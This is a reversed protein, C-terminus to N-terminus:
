SQTPGTQDENGETGGMGYDNQAANIDAMRRGIAASVRGLQSFPIHSCMELVARDFADRDSIMTRLREINDQHRLVYLAQAVEELTPIVPVAGDTPRGHEDMAPAGAEDLPMRTFPSDIKQLMILAGFSPLPVDLGGDAESPVHPGAATLIAENADTQPQDQM